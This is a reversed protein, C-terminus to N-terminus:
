PVKDHAYYTRSQAAFMSSTRVIAGYVALRIAIVNRHHKANGNALYQKLDTSIISDM